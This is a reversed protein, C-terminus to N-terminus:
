LSFDRLCPPNLASLLLDYEPHLTEAEAIETNLDSDEGFKIAGTPCSDYCRPVQYEWDKDLLHACGTCKQAINLDENYFIAGYPCNDVCNMCGTCKAPNIIVLGDDRVYIADVNCAAICPADSCHQCPVFVYSMKVHPVQGRVYENLKGWFQGTDPQPKAYPMWENGVHEDKCSIQCSYCGNCITTDIIFNKMNNSAEKLGPMLVIVQLGTMNEPLHRMSIQVNFGCIPREVQVLFGSTAIGTAHRSIIATPCILNNAGGRDINPAISDCRSGHDMYAVGPMIRETVYAGGLVTGRENFVSVVDGSVIGREAATAPNLWVPEYMYGDPGEVKCTPIERMWSIDDHEAHMRWRPHNSVVLLPYSKARDCSLTEQHTEGEPIWHPVPPREDDDPFNQALSQSYFEIKGSTTWLPNNEPDQYFNIIAIPNDEWNESTPVVYYGKDVFDEWTILDEVGSNDFALKIFEEVTTEQTFKDYLDLKKAIEAVAEYDSKSEGIPEICKWEPFLSIYESDALVDGGIDDEEFKTNVPLIIDSYLMDDELWPHQSVICELNPSKMADLFRNGGNWCTTFCPMDTWYMHISTGGESSSIPFTYQVYQDSTAAIAPSGYWKLTGENLIAQPVLPKAITQPNDLRFPNRPSGHGVSSGISLSPTMISPPLGGNCTTYQYAGPKGVGQLALLAVELRAPEHSYPGRIMSGGNVHAVTTVKSAWEKAL